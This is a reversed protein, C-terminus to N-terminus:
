LKGQNLKTDLQDSVFYGGTKPSGKFKILDLSQLKQLDRRINEQDINLQNAILNSRLGPSTKILEFIRILREKVIISIRDGIVNNVTDNVTDNKEIKPNPLPIITKFIDGEIFEAKQGPSYASLYKNVNFVGSGLEDVRGM